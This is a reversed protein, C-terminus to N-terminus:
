SSKLSGNRMKCLRILIVTPTKVFKLGTSKRNGTGNTGDGAHWGNEDLPLHQYVVSDDVTFHRSVAIDPQKM